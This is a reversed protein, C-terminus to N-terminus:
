RQQTRTEGPRVQRDQSTARTSMGHTLGAGQQPQQQGAEDMVDDRTESRGGGATTSTRFCDALIEEASRYRLMLCRQPGDTQGVTQRDCV